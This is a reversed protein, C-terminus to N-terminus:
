HLYKVLEYSKNYNLAAKYDEETRCVDSMKVWTVISIGRVEEVNGSYDKFKSM